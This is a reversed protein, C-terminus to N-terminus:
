AYKPLFKVANDREIARIEAESFGVNRLGQVIPAGDFFPTDTGFVIQSTTVLTKLGQMNIPNAAGATDYFFRRLHHLRSDPEAGAKALSAADAAAGLFRGAVALLTGGAHSFVFRVNPTRTATGGVILSVIARTTDTPYELMQAAVGPVMNPCCVADTPHVYVVARRREFEAFVPAFAKDGLWQTGYSTLLGVGDARLTDFAYEIERLSGDIDPLPLVAFLGFRGKYAAAMQAAGYENLERALTRAEQVDGFWVGPATVSIMGTAAGIRDLGEVARAPTFEKWAALGPVPATANKKNLLQYYSPSVFHQHVDLRYPRAGGQAAVDLGRLALAAGAATLGGLFTRRTPMPM